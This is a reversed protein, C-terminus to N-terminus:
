LDVVELFKKSSRCSKQDLYRVKQFDKFIVYRVMAFDWHWFDYKKDLSTMKPLSYSTEMKLHIGGEGLGIRHAM